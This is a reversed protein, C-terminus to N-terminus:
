SLFAIMSTSVPRYLSRCLDSVPRLSSTAETSEFGSGSTGVGIFIRGAVVDVEVGTPEGVPEGTLAPCVVVVPAFVVVFVEDEPLEVRPPVVGVPVPVCDPPGALGAALGEGFGRCRRLWRAHSLWV